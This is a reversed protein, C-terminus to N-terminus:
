PLFLSLSSIVMMGPVPVFLAADADMWPPGCPPSAPSFDASPHGGPPFIPNGRRSGGRGKM